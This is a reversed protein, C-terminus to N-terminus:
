GLGGLNMYFINKFTRSGYETTIIIKIVNSAVEPYKFHIIFVGKILM